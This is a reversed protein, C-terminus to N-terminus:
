EVIMKGTAYGVAHADVLNLIEVDFSADQGTPALATLTGICDNESLSDFSVPGYLNWRCLLSPDIEEGAGLVVARFSEGESVPNRIGDIRIRLDSFQNNYPFVGDVRGLSAGAGDRITIAYPAAGSPVAYGDADRIPALGQKLVIESCDDTVQTVHADYPAAVSVECSAGPPLPGTAPTVAVVLEGGLQVSGRLLDARYEQALAPTTLFVAALAAAIPNM